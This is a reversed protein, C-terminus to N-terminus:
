SKTLIVIFLVGFTIMLLVLASRRSANEARRVFQAAPLDTQAGTRTEAQQINHGQLQYIQAVIEAALRLRLRYQQIAFEQASRATSLAEFGFDERIPIAITPQHFDHEEQFEANGLELEQNPNTQPSDGRLPEFSHSQQAQEIQAFGAFIGDTNESYLAIDIAETSIANTCDASVARVPAEEFYQSASGQAPIGTNATSLAINEHEVRITDSDGRYQSQVM